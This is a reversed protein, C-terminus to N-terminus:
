GHSFRTAVVAVERSAPLPGTNNMKIWRLVDPPKNQSNTTNQNHNSAVNRTDFNM